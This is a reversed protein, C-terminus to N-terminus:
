DQEEIPPSVPPLVPATIAPSAARSVASSVASPNTGALAPLLMEVMSRASRCHQYQAFGRTATEQMQELLAPSEGPMALLAEPRLFLGATNSPREPTGDAFLAIAMAHAQYAAFISSKGLLHAPYVLAGALSNAFLESAQPVALTGYSRLLGGFPAAANAEFWAPDDVPGVDAIEEIALHEAVRKLLAPHQEYIQKRTTFRGFVALRRARVRLAATSEPEGTTSCIGILQVPRKKWNEEQALELFRESSTFAADTLALLRRFIRRQLGATFLTRSFLRPSAYLEHFLTVVRGGRAIFHELAPALWTPTGQSSYGYSVYHLLLVPRQGACLFPELAQELADNGSGLYALSHAFPQPLELGSDAGSGAAPASYVLFHTPVQYDQWFVDALRLAAEGVGDTDPRFRAVLQILPSALRNATDTM